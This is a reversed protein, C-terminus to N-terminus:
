DQVRAEGSGPSGPFTNGYSGMEDGSLGPSCRECRQLHGLPHPVISDAVHESCDACHGARALVGYVRNNHAVIISLASTTVPATQHIVNKNLNM